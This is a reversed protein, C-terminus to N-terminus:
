VIGYNKYQIPRNFDTNGRTAQYKRWILRKAVRDHPEDNLKASYNAQMRGSVLPQGEKDTLTVADGDVIYHGPEITGPRDGMPRSITVYTSHVQM